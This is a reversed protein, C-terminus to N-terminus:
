RINDGKLFRFGAGERLRPYHELIIEHFDEQSIIADEFAIEKEGLGARTKIRKM